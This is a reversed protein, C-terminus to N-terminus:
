GIGHMCVVWGTESSAGPMVSLVEIAGTVKPLRPTENIQAIRSAAQFVQVVTRNQWM